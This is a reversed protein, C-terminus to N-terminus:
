LFYFDYCPKRLHVQPLIMITNRDKSFKSSLFFRPSKQRASAARRGDAARKHKARGFGHPRTANMGQRRGFLQTRHGARASSPDIGSLSRRGEERNCKARGTLLQSGFGFHEKFTLALKQDVTKAHAISYLPDSPEPTSSSRLLSRTPIHVAPCILM